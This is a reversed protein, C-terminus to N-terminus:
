DPGVAGSPPAVAAPTQPLREPLPLRVTFAGRLDGSAYGTALDDPYRRALIEGVGPALASPQGHCALCQPGLVIPRLYRLEAEGGAGTVVQALEGPLSGAQAQVAFRELAAREFADPADAPNRYRLSIRRLSIGLRAAEERTAVQAQDACVDVAGKAGGHAVEAELLSRLRAGLRDVAQRALALSAAPVASPSPAPEIGGVVTSSVAPGTGLALALFASPLARQWRRFPTGGSRM